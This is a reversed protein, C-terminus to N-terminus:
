GACGARRARPTTPATSRSASAAPRTTSTSVSCCRTPAPWPRCPSDGSGAGRACGDVTHRPAGARVPHPAASGPNPLSHAHRAGSPAGDGEVLGDVRGARAVEPDEATARDGVPQDLGRAVGRDVVDAHGHHEVVQWRQHPVGLEAPRQAVVPGAVVVAPHLQVVQALRHRGPLLPVALPAQSRCIVGSTPRSCSSASSRVMARSLPTDNGLVMPRAQRQSRPRSPWRDRRSRRACPAAVRPRRSRRPPRGHRELLHAHQAGVRRRVPVVGPRNQLPSVSGSRARSTRRRRPRPPRAGRASAAGLAARGRRRRGRAGGHRWPAGRSRGCPSPSARGSCTPSSSSPACRPRRALRGGVFAVSVDAGHARGHHRRLPRRCRRAPHKSARGDASDVRHPFTEFVDPVPSSPRRRM